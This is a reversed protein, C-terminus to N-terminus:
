YNKELDLYEFLPLSSPPYHNIVRRDCMVNLLEECEKHSIGCAKAIHQIARFTLKEQSRALLVIQTTTSNHKFPHQTM